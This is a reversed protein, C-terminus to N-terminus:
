LSRLVVGTRKEFTEDTMGFFFSFPPHMGDEEPLELEDWNFADEYPLAAYQDNIPRFYHLARHLSVSAPDIDPLRAETALPLNKPPKSLEPKPHDNPLSSLLPPLYLIPTVHEGDGFVPLLHPNRVNDHSVGSRAKLDSSHDPVSFTLGPM